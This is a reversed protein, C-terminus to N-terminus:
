DNIIQANILASIFDDKDYEGFVEGAEKEVVHESTMFDELHDVDISWGNVAVRVYRLVVRDSHRVAKLCETWEDDLAFPLFLTATKVNWERLVNAWKIMIKKFTAAPTPAQYQERDFYYLDYTLRQGEIEFGKNDIIIKM